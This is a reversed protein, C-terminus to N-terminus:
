EIFVIFLICARFDFESSFMEAKLDETYKQLIKSSSSSPGVMLFTYM